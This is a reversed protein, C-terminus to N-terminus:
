RAAYGLAHMRNLWRARREAPVSEVSGIVSSRVPHIGVFRLINRELNKLSHARYYWRYVVAPMGMTVVVRASKGSLKGHASITGNEAFRVYEPRAVQELFAKLLAPMDGLWLPYVVVLHDANALAQQAAAIAAPPTGQEWEHKSRLLPFDMTAVTLTTVVHGGARAGQAYADALAHCFHNGLSDPHGQVIAIRRAGAGGSAGM